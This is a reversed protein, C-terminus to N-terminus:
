RTFTRCWQAVDEEGGEVRNWKTNEAIVARDAELYWGERGAM